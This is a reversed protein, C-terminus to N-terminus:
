IDYTHILLLTWIKDWYGFLSATQYDFLESADEPAAAVTLPPPPFTHVKSTNFFDHKQTCKTKVNQTKTLVLITKKKRILTAVADLILKLILNQM